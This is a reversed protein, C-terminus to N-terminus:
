QLKRSLQYLGTCAMAVNVSFLNWNKQLRSDIIWGFLLSLIDKEWVLLGVISRCKWFITSGKHMHLAQRYWAHTFIHEYTFPPHIIAVFNVSVRVWHYWCSSYLFCPEKGKQHGCALQELNCKTCVQSSPTCLCISLLFSPVKVWQTLSHTLSLTSQLKVSLAQM